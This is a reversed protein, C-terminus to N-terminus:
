EGGRLARIAELIVMDHRENNTILDRLETDILKVFM